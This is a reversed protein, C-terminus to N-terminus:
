WLIIARCTRLCSATPPRTVATASNFSATRTSPTTSDGQRVKKGNPGDFPAMECNMDLYYVGNFVLKVRFGTELAPEKRLRVYAASPIRDMLDLEGREFMMQMTLDDLGFQVDIADLAPM